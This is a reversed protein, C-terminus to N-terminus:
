EIWKKYKNQNKYIEEPYSKDIQAIRFKMNERNFLDKKENIMKEIHKVEAFEIFETHSFNKVKNIIEEPTMLYSFHWGGENILKRKIKQDIRWFPINKVRMERTLQASEFYKFKIAKTGAWKNKWKLGEFCLLNIKYYYFNQLFVSSDYNLFKKCNLNPIEDADSVLIIDNSQADYLGRSLANRQFKEYVWNDGLHEPFDNIYFYRIKNKYKEFKKISFLQKKIKGSFYKAGEVIVFFDIDKDLITFRLELLEDEGSYIFCDYLKM